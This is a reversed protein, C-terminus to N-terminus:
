FHLVILIEIECRILFRRGGWYNLVSRQNPSIQPCPPCPRKKERKIEQVREQKQRRQTLTSSSLIKFLSASDYRGPATTVTNSTNETVGQHLCHVGLHSSRGRLNLGQGWELVPAESHPVCVAAWAQSNEPGYNSGHSIWADQMVSPPVASQGVASGERKARREELVGANRRSNLM